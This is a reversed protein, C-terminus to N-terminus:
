FTLRFYLLDPHGGDQAPTYERFGRKRYIEQAATMSSLTDLVVGRYGLARARDIVAETLARGLGLGRAADTLYLRKMEAQHDPAPRLGVTGVVQDGAEAILLAGTPPQYEGPFRAMEDDFGQFCLDVDLSESYALFLRRAANVDEPSVADRVRINEAM